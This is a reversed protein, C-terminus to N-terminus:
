IRSYVTIENLGRGMYIYIYIYKKKWGFLFIIFHNKLYYIHEVNYRSVSSCSVIQYLLSTDKMQECLIILIKEQLIFIAAVYKYWSITVRFIEQQKYVIENTTMQFKFVNKLTQLANHYYLITLHLGVFM